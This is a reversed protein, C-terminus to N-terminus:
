KIEHHATAGILEVGSILIGINQVRMELNLNVLHM